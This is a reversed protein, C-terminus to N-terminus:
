REERRMEELIESLTPGDTIPPLPKHDLLDGKPRTAGREAVLREFSSERDPLPSLIAVPEGRKTVRLSEGAEVRRLYVSLNQRLERVSVDSM